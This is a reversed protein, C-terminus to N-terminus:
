RLKLLLLLTSLWPMVPISFSPAIRGLTLNFNEVFETNPKIGYENVSTPAFGAEVIDAHAALIYEPVPYHNVCWEQSVSDLTSEFLLQGIDRDWQAFGNIIQWLLM